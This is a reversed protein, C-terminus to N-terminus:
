QSALLAKTNPGLPLNYDYSALIVSDTARILRASVYVSYRGVAYTGAVVAAANHTRSIDRVSRSLVFEGAGEKIFVSSRLKMEIMTFGQQAFRSAVQEAIIRGLGSSDELANVNVFTATLLPQHSEKLWPTQDSLADAARYSATVLDEDQITPRPPEYPLACGSIGSGLSTLLATCLSVIHISKM